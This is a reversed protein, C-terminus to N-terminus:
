NSKPMKYLNKKDMARHTNVRGEQSDIELSNSEKGLEIISLDNLVRMPTSHIQKTTPQIDMCSLNEDIERNEWEKKEM